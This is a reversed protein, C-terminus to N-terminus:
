DLPFLDEVTLSRSPALPSVPDSLARGVARFEKADGNCGTCSNGLFIRSLRGAVACSSSIEASGASGGEGM